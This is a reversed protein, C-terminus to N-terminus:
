AGRDLCAIEHKCFLNKFNPGTFYTKLILWVRNVSKLFAQSASVQPGETLPITPFNSGDTSYEYRTMNESSVWGTTHKGVLERSTRSETKKMKQASRHVPMVQIIGGLPYTGFARIEEPTNWAVPETQILRDAALLLDTDHDTCSEAKGLSACAWTPGLTGSGGTLLERRMRLHPVDREGPVPFVGTQTRMRFLPSRHRKLPQRRRPKVLGIFCTLIDQCRHYSSVALRPDVPSILFM